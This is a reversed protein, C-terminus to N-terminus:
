RPARAPSTRAARCPCERGRSQRGGGGSRLLRGALWGAAAALWQAFPTPLLLGSAPLVVLPAAALALVLRSAAGARYWLGLPLALGALWLADLSTALGPPFELVPLVLTWGSGASFGHGCSVNADRALCLSAGARWIGLTVPTESGAGRWAAHARLVAPELGLARARSRYRYVLDEGDLALLMVERDRADSVLFIAEFGAAPGASIARVRLAEGAGLAARAAVVDAIAGHVLAQGALTAELVPGPYPVLTGLAPNWHAYWPGATLAPATLAACLGTSALWVLLALRELRRASARAPALWHPATRVLAHGLGTGLANALVDDLSSARGPIALQAIEIAAALAFGCFWTLRASAGRLALAVGLPIYLAINRLLDALSGLLVIRPGAPAGPAPALTLAAIALLAAVVLGEALRRQANGGVSSV